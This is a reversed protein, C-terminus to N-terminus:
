PRLRVFFNSAMQLMAGSASQRALRFNPLANPRTAAASTATSLSGARLALTRYWLAIFLDALSALPTTWGCSRLGPIRPLLTCVPLRPLHLSSLTRTRSRCVFVAGPSIRSFRDSPHIHTDGTRLNIPRGNFRLLANTPTSSPHQPPSPPPVLWSSDLPLCSFVSAWLPSPGPPSGLALLLLSARLHCCWFVASYSSSLM